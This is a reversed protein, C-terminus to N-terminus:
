AHHVGKLFFASHYTITNAAAVVDAVTVSRIEDAYTQPTRALGSIAATSFFNEMAGPSDYVARLGSLISEKAAALETDSIQGERCACLQAHIAQLAEQERNSDIGANVTLIGKSGYYGSGIAYCLSMKERVEMFLKSTMGSGFISNCVQMAAFRPDRNTIPTVFGMSLKAQAIQQTEHKEQGPAHRFPMQPPLPLLRRRLGALAPQLLEALTDISASGVYFIEMPSEQLIKQYHTYASVPDIAEVQEKEGLRPIGFTDNQCMIKLLQGAAYTRKDSRESEIAAILNRKESEVFDRSFGGEEVIPELLLQLAFAIMPALIEDGPLAFRDEMFGCYFGTTQYDGIRRVLTGISAGYLDDLHQTIQQLDPYERCGRLLIAPLLANVAAEAKDMPRLLQISLASQKFRRDQICRLTVGPLIEKTQLM